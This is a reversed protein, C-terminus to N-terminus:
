PAVLLLVVPLSVASLATQLTIMAAMMEHDGGLQRALIYASTAGPLAAFLVAVATSLPPLGVLACTSWMLAPMAVLKVVCSALVAAGSARLARINLGAGVALLGLPLAARGLIDLVGAVPGPLGLGALNIVAGSVCALVLPNRAIGWLTPLWGTRRGHAGWRTLVTVCLVNIFPILIAATIAALTLGPAGWLAVAVAIGLYTNFRIGGQFLSTFGPASLGLWRRAVLLLLSMLLVAGTLALALQALPQGGLPARALNVVLLAPFLM